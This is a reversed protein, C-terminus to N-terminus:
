TAGVDLVRLYRDVVRDVHFEMARRRLREPKPPDDLTRLIADKMAEHDGLPVLRGWRGGDLIERVGGPCDTAVIPCGCALAEILVTPLAEYNSSLALLNARAMYGYPNSVFGPLSVDDAV